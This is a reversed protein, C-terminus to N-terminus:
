RGYRHRRRLRDLELRRNGSRPRPLDQGPLLLDDCVWQGDVHGDHDLAALARREGVDVAVREDVEAAADATEVDPMRIRADDFRHLLLRGLEEM